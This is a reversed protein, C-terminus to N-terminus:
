LQTFSILIFFIVLDTSNRFGAAIETMFVFCFDVEVHDPNISERDIFSFNYATLVM